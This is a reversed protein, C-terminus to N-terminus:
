SATPVPPQSNREKRIFPPAPSSAKIPSPRASSKVTPRTGCSSGSTRPAARSWPEAPRSRPSRLRPGPTSNRRRARPSLASASPRTVADGHPPLAKAATPPMQWFKLLGDDGVSAVYTDTNHFLVANAAGRHAGVVGIPQGKAVDWFRVTGDAGSSALLLGKSNFAVDTVPGVHGTLNLISKGDATSWLKVSGDKGAAALIKGDPALAVRNVADAALFERLPSSSPIDWLKVSNDSSGSAIAHGTPHFALSLVLNKHGDYTKIEKGTAVEWLKITKDFSGTVVYKGDPSFAIAYVTAAHGKLVVTGPPL